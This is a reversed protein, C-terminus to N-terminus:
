PGLALIGDGSARTSVEMASWKKSFSTQGWGSSQYTSISGVTHTFGDESMVLCPRKPKTVSTSLGFIFCTEAIREDLDVRVLKNAVRHVIPHFHAADVSFFSADRFRANRGRCNTITM